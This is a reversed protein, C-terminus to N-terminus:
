ADKPSRKHSLQYIIWRCHLLDPNSGQTPFIGQLLSLSCVGTTQGLSNRPSYLGYPQLSDSMVTCSESVKVHMRQGEWIASNNFFWGGLALSTLPVSEKWGQTPFISHLLAQCGVRSKKGSSDRPCLFRSSQLGKPQVSNSM